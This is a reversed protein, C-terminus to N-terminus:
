HIDDSGFEDFFNFQTDTLSLHTLHLPFSFVVSFYSTTLLVAWLKTGIRTSISPSAFTSLQLFSALPSTVTGTCVSQLFSSESMSLFTYSTTVSNGYYSIICHLSHRFTRLVSYFGSYLEFITNASSTKRRALLELNRRITWVSERFIIRTKSPSSQSYKILLPFKEKRSVVNLFQGLFNAWNYLNITSYHRCM